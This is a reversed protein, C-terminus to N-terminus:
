VDLETTEMAILDGSELSTASHTADSQEPEPQGLALIEKVQAIRGRLRATEIADLQAGDNRERMAQLQSRLHAHLKIWVASRTEIADLTM